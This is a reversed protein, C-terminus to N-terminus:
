SMTQKAIQKKEFEKEQIRFEEICKELKEIHDESKRIIVQIQGNECAVLTVVQTIPLRTREGFM